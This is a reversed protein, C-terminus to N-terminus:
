EKNAMIEEVIKISERRNEEYAERNDYEVMWVYTDILSYILKYIKRRITSNTDCSLEKGYGEMFAENTIWPSAFEFECDGFVARDADIIAAVEYIGKDERVLINGAWLDAHILHPVKIEDLIDKYECFVLTFKEIETESFINFEKLRAGLKSVEDKLYESWLNFGAGISVDYARGFQNSTIEHVINIYKGTEKYISDLVEKNVKLESLVSSNIYEVIMYDRDIINKDVDCVLVKSCPIEKREFHKYVYEEAKMLNNEFPLILQKNVPGVRLIIEKKNNVKIHYTTNFLGGSILKAKFETELGFYNEIIKTLEKRTLEKYIKSIKNM